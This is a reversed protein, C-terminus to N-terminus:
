KQLIKNVLDEKVFVIKNKRPIFNQVVETKFMKSIETENDRRSKYIEDTFLGVIAFPYYLKHPNSNNSAWSNNNNNHIAILKKESKIKERFSNKTQDNFNFYNEQFLHVFINKWSLFFGKGIDM